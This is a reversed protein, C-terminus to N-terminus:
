KARKLSNRTFKSETLGTNMEYTSWALITSKGTQHNLMSIKQPRWIHGLYQKYETFLATKLLSGKRDYFVIKQLRYEAKDVWAEQRSYGSNPDTPIREIVFNDLGNFTEDRLFKYTYKEIEQSSLDEYAFESGMFPGSKNKSAIRKVRKLAPLFLWQEDPKTKHSWTLLATGRVDRPRDFLILTKDGDNKMEFASNRMERLSEEGQKNRLLMSMDAVQDHWGQDRKEAETVIALGKEAATEAFLPVVSLQSLLLSTLIFHKNM